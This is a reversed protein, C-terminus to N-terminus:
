KYIHWVLGDKSFVTDIYDKHEDHDHGTGYIRFFHDQLNNNINVKAWIYLKEDQFGAKLVEAKYPMRVIPHDTIPLEYKYIRYIPENQPDDFM